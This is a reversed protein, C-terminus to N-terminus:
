AFPQSWVWLKRRAVSVDGSASKFQVSVDYTGADAFVSCIGSDIDGLVQGSVIADGGAGSSAALGGGRTNLRRFLTTSADGSADQFVAGGESPVKLQTTNLFIAARGAGAVTNNWVASFLIHILGNTPLVIDEVRDPTGLEGYTANTRTQTAAIISKGRSRHLMAADVAEALAQIQANGQPPDSGESFPFGFNPTTDM